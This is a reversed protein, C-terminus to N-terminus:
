NPSWLAFLQWPRLEPMTLVGGPAPARSGFACAVLSSVGDPFRIAVNRKPRWGTHALVYYRGKGWARCDIERLSVLLSHGESSFRFRGDAERQLETLDFLDTTLRSMLRGTRNRDYFSFSLENLHAFLDRRIDAEM